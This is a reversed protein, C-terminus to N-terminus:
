SNCFNQKVEIQKAETLDGNDWRKNKSTKMLARTLFIKYM